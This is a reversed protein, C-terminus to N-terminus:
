EGDVEVSPKNMFQCFESVACYKECKLGNWTEEDTCKESWGGQELAKLLDKQKKDFYTKVEEDPLIPIPIIVGREEIGRNKAIMTGGDRVVAYIQLADVKFGKSELMVRYKNLQLVWDRCDQKALNRQYTKIVKPDGKLRVQKVGNITVTSKMKYVETPSDKAVEEIGLAKSVKYSGTVKYDTMVHWGDETDYLDFAGTVGEDSELREETLATAIENQEIQGHGFTGLIKFMQETPAEAYNQTICLFAEYTGKILQTVSPKGKWPRVKGVEILIPRPMCRMGLRCGCDGLCKKIDIKEGDPCIFDTLM